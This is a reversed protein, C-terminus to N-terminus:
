IWDPGAALILKLLQATDQRTLGDEVAFHVSNM